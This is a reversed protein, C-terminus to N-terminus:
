NVCLLSIGGVGRKAVGVKWARGTVKRENVCDTNELEASGDRTAHSVLISVTLIAPWTSGRGGAV